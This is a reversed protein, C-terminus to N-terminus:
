FDHDRIIEGQTYAITPMNTFDGHNLLEPERDNTANNPTPRDDNNGSIDNFKLPNNLAYQYPNIRQPDISTAQDRSIFRSSNSDYYRNRIYFLGSDGEQMVGYAGLFTFPNDTAGTQATVAGYPMIGYSYVLRNGLRGLSLQFLFVFINIGIILVTDFPFTETPVDDKLPIM